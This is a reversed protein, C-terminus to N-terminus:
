KIVKTVSSFSMIFETYEGFKSTCKINSNMREMAKKCFHLGIGFRGKSFDTDFIRPLDSQKIGIGTDKYHIKNKSVWIYIEADGGAHNFTNKLLNFIVHKFLHRSGKFKFDVSNDFHIKSKQEETLYFERLAIEICSVVSYKKIDSYQTNINKSATLIIEVNKMCYNTLKILENVDNVVGSNDKNNDKNNVKELLMESRVKVVSIPSFVEHAIANAFAKSIELQNHASTVKYIVLLVFSFSFAGNSFITYHEIYNIMIEVINGKYISAIFMHLAYAAILSSSWLIAFLRNNTFIYLLGSSLTLRIIWQIGFDSLFLTYSPLFPLGLFLILIQFVKKYKTRKLILRYFLFWICLLIITLNVVSISIVIFNVYVLEFITIPTYILLFLSCLLYYLSDRKELHFVAESFLMKIKKLYGNM